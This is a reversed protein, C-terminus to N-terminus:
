SGAGTPETVSTDNSADSKLNTTLGALANSSPFETNLKELDADTTSTTGLSADFAISLFNTNANTLALTPVRALLAPIFDGQIRANLAATNSLLALTTPLAFWLEPSSARIGPVSSLYSVLLTTIPTINATQNTSTGSSISYMVSLTTDTPTLKLLCPGIGNAINIAYNGTTGDSLTSGTGLKCTVSALGAVAKGVAVTGSISLNGGVGGGSEGGCASLLLGSGIVIAALSIKKFRMQYWKLFYFFLRLSCIL